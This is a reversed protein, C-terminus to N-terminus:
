VLNNRYAYGALGIDSKVGLKERLNKFLQDVYRRSLALHRTIEKKSKERCLMRLLTIERSDLINRGSDDSSLQIMMNMDFYKNGNHIDDIAKILVRFSSQKSIQGRIGLAISKRVNEARSTESILLIKQKSDRELIKRALAYGNIPSLGADLIVIDFCEKELTETVAKAGIVTNVVAFQGADTGPVVHELAKKVAGHWLPNNDAYLIRITEM